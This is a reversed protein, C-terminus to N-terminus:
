VRSKRIRELMSTYENEKEKNQKQLEEEENIKNEIQMDPKKYQKLIEFDIENLNANSNILLDVLSNDIKNKKASSKFSNIENQRVIEKNSKELIAIQEKLANLENDNISNKNELEELNKQAKARENERTKKAVKGIEFNINENIANDIADYDIEGNENTFNNILDQIKM